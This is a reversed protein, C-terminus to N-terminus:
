RPFVIDVADAEGGATVGSRGGALGPARPATGGAGPEALSGAPFSLRCCQCRVRLDVECVGSRWGSRGGCLRVEHSRPATALASARTARTGSIM